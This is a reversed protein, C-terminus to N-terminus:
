KTAVINLIWINTLAIGYQRAFVERRHAPCYPALDDHRERWREFVVSSWEDGFFAEVMAADGRMFWINGHVFMPANMLLHGGPRLLRWCERVDQRYARITAERDTLDEHWHEITSAGYILDFQRGRLRPSPFRDLLYRQHRNRQHLGFRVLHRFVRRQLGRGPLWPVEFIPLRAPDIGTYRTRHARCFAETVASLPGCGIELVDRDEFLRAHKDIMALSCRRTPTGVRGGEPYFIARWNGGNARLAEAFRTELDRCRDHSACAGCNVHRHEIRAGRALTGEPGM